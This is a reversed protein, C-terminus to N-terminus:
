QLFLLQPPPPPPLPLLQHHVPPFHSLHSSSPHHTPPPSPPPASVHSHIPLTSPPCQPFPHPASLSATSNNYPKLLCCAVSPNPFPFRLPHHSPLLFPPLPLWTLPFTPSAQQMSITTLIPFLHQPTIAMSQNPLHYDTASTPYRWRFLLSSQTVM